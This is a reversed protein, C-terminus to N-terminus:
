QCSAIYIDNRDDYEIEEVYIETNLVLWEKENIPCGELGDVKLVVNGFSWAYKLDPSMSLFAEQDHLELTDGEEIQQPDINIGRYLTPATVQHDYIYDIIIDIEESSLFQFSTEWYKQIEEPKSMKKLEEM